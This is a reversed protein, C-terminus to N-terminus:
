ILGERFLAKIKKLIPKSIRGGLIKMEPVQIKCVLKKRRYVHVHKPLHDGSWWVIIHNKIKIKGM